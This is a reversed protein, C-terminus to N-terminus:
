PQTIFQRTTWPTGPRARVYSPYTVAGPVRLAPYATFSFPYISPNLGKRTKNVHCVCNVTDTKMTQMLTIAPSRKM